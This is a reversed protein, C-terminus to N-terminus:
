DKSGSQDWRTKGPRSVLQGGVKYKGTQQDMQLARGYKKEYRKAWLGSATEPAPQKNPYNSKDSM